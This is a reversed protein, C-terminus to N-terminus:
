DSSMWLSQYQGDGTGVVCFILLWLFRGIGMVWQERTGYSEGAFSVDGDLWWRVMRYRTRWSRVLGGQSKLVPSNPLADYAGRSDGAQSNLLYSVVRSALSVLVPMYGTMHALFAYHDLAERRLQVQEPTSEPFHYPWGM